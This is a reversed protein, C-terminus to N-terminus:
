LRGMIAAIMLTIVTVVLSITGAVTGLRLYINKIDKRVEKIEDRVTSELKDTNKVVNELDALIKGKFLADAERRDTTNQCDDCQKNM